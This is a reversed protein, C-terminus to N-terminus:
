AGQLDLQQVALAFEGDGDRVVVLVEVVRDPPFTFRNTRRIRPAPHTAARKVVAPVLGLAAPLADAGDPRGDSDTRHGHNSM